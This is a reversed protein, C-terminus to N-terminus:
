DSEEPLANNNIISVLKNGSELWSFNAEVFERNGSLYSESLLMELVAGVFENPEDAVKVGSVNADIGEMAQPSAVIPKGMAMAELVKNQIGRAIRLPAVIVDAYQIYPRMDDVRGTVVVDDHAHLDRVQSSPKSGVIYFVMGKKKTRLEPMVKEVFWVVADVNAWYDMAGTFVIATEHEKYPNAFSKSPTFFDIDVGNNVFDIKPSLEHSFTKFLEAEKESVFLVQNSRKTVKMEYDLLRKSERSYVWSIPWSKKESYQRWKDSDIDVFDAIVEMDQHKTVFQAMVSSFIFAKKIRHQEVTGNVWQYMSRIDYYPVSLSSETLLGKASIATRLTPNITILKVESCYENVHSVYALDDVDDIFAGLYVNFHESLHKLFHFSRIKDGKNPPYPIRHVLFLLNDM